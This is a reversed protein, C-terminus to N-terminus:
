EVFTRRRKNGGEQSNTPLSPKPQVKRKAGPPVRRRGREQQRNWRFDRQRGRLRPLLRPRGHLRPLSSTTRWGKWSWCPLTGPEVLPHRWPSSTFLFLAHFSVAHLLVLLAHLVLTFSTKSLLGKWDILTVYIKDIGYVFYPNQGAHMVM